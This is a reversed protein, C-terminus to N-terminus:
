QPEPCQNLAASIVNTRVKGSPTNLLLPPLPQHNLLNSASPQLNQSSEAPNSKDAQRTCANFFLCLALYMYPKM